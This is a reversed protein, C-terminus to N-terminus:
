NLVMGSLEESFLKEEVHYSRAFQMLFDLTQKKPNLRFSIKRKEQINLEKNELNSSNPTVTRKM